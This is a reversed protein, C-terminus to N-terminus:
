ARVLSALRIAIVWCMLAALALAPAAYCAWCHGPLGCIPGYTATLAMHRGAILAVPASLAAFGIASRRFAEAPAPAPRPSRM